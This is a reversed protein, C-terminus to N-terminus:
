PSWNVVVDNVIPSATGNSTCDSASCIQIKYKYYQQNNHQTPACSLEVPADSGTTDYFNTTNCVGGQSGYFTWPGGSSDSTALQFQVKGLSSNLDGKWMISNYAPDAVTTDFIASTLTGTPSLGSALVAKAYTSQSYGMNVTSGGNTVRFCYPVNAAASALSTASVGYEIETFKDSDLTIAATTNGLTKVQGAVFTANENTLGNAVDSTATADAVTTTSLHMELSYNTPVAVYSTAFPGNECDTGSSLEAFELTFAPAAGRTWGENSIEFRLRVATNIPFNVYQTDENAFFTALAENNDDNRWRYHSQTYRPTFWGMLWCLIGSCDSFTASTSTGVATQGGANHEGFSASTSTGTISETDGAHIEF